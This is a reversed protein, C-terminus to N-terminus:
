KVRIGWGFTVPVVWWGGTVLGDWADMGATERLAKILLTALKSVQFAM